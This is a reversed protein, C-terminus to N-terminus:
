KSPRKTRAARKPKAGLFVFAKDRVKVTRRELATGACSVGEEVEPLALALKRLAEVPERAM